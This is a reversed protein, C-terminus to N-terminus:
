VTTDVNSRYKQQEALRDCMMDASLLEHAHRFHRRYWKAPKYKGDEKKALLKEICLEDILGMLKEIDIGTTIKCYELDECVCFCRMISARQDVWEMEKRETEWSEDDCEHHNIRCMAALIEHPQRLLVEAIEIPKKDQDSLRRIIEHEIRWWKPAKYFPMFSLEFFYDIDKITRNFKEAIQEHTLGGMRAYFLKLMDDLILSSSEIIKKRHKSM